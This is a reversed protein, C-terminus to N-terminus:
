QILRPDKGLQIQVYIRFCFASMGRLSWSNAKKNEAEVTPMLTRAFRLQTRGLHGQTQQV